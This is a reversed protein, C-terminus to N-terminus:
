SRSLQGGSLCSSTNPFICKMGLWKRIMTIFPDSHLHKSIILDSQQLFTQEFILSSVGTFKGKRYSDYGLKCFWLFVVGLIM